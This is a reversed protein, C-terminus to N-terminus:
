RSPAARRARSSPGSATASSSASATAALGSDGTALAFGFGDFAEAGGPVGPSDQTFLQGGVATLGGASGPLVSVAGADARSGVNEFPAGAALDAFTDANFDGAALEFGFEDDAEVAGAVQTFLQGGVATLGGASGPLVSVAGAGARSGVSEGPAGAALDAFTDHNFDGAALAFGFLDGTEVAGGVQTFLQGGVATLGGASGPLVSVAGADARSGVDEFPAGAALDAFTDHNFDGAALASGFEDGTEVAGAVQTFLQGGVATLGGASGPLVSVAGAGGRSGVSEGPAAAALDAFTDHNFDGAALEFGFGDGAEVAGAVQTFLQGGVATLGGASGPLVSVAGAEATSGVDESPAGAALDAFTDHNFDGVALAFGFEDGTESAGAVQPFFQSGITTLGTPSGYLVNVAGASVRSGVSEGPAGVALDAFTDHNFDGTALAFGFVDGQEANNPVGPTDQTFLQSGTGSLGTPSGYLVNVAGAAVISGLNEFPVGVALDDAGDNNFDAQLSRAPAPQTM